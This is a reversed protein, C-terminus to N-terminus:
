PSTGPAWSGLKGNDDKIGSKLKLLAHSAPVWSADALLLLLFLRALPPAGAM